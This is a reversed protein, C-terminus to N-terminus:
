VVGEEGGCRAPELKTMCIRGGLIAHKGGPERPQGPGAAAVDGSLEQANMEIRQNRNTGELTIAGCGQEGSGAEAGM